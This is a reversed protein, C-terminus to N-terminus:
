PSTVPKGPKRTWRSRGFPVDTVKKESEREGMLGMSQFPIDRLSTTMIEPTKDDLRNARTVRASEPM